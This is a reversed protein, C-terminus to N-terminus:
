SVFGCSTLTPPDSGASDCRVGEVKEQFFDSLDQACLEVPISSNDSDVNTVAFLTSWLKRSDHSNLAIQTGWYVLEKRFRVGL